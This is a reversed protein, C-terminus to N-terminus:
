IWHLKRIMNLCLKFKISMGILDEKKRKSKKKTTEENEKTVFRGQANRVPKPKPQRVFEQFHSTVSEHTINKYKKHLTRDKM